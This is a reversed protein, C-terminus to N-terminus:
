KFFDDFMSMQAPLAAEALHQRSEGLLKKIVEQPSKSMAVLDADAVGTKRKRRSSYSFYPSFIPHPSYDWARTDSESSLKTGPSRVLALHMIADTLLQAAEEQQEKPAVQGADKIFFQNYEPASGVPNSALIQFFRGFGLILKSLHSGRSTAGELERLYNLGVRRAAVTQEKCDIPETLDKELSIQQVISEHVLQM